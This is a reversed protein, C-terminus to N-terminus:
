AMGLDATGLAGAESAPWEQGMGGCSVSLCLEPETETPDNPGSICCLKNSGELHRQHTDPKIRFTIEGRRGGQKPKEKARQHPTDKKPQIWCKGTLPQGAALQLKLTKTSWLLKPTREPSSSCM